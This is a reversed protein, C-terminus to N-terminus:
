KASHLRGKRRVRLPTEYSHSEFDAVSARLTHIFPSAPQDARVIVGSERLDIRHETRLGRSDRKRMFCSRQSRLAGTAAVCALQGDVRSASRDRGASTAQDHREQGAKRVMATRATGRKIAASIAIGSSPVRSSANPTTTAPTNASVCTPPGSVTPPRCDATPLPVLSRSIVTTTERSGVASRRGGVAKIASAAM